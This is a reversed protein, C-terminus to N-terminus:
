KTLLIINGKLADGEGARENTSMTRRSQCKRKSKVNNSIEKTRKNCTDFNFHCALAQSTLLYAPLFLNTILTWLLPTNAHFM